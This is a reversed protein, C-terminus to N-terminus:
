RRACKMRRARARSLARSSSSFSSSARRGTHADRRGDDDDDDDDRRADARVHSAVSAIRRRATARADDM